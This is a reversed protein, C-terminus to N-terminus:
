LVIESFSFEDVLVNIEAVFFELKRFQRIRIQRGHGGQVLQGVLQRVEGLPVLQGEM